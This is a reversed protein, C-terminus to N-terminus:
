RSGPWILVQFCAASSVMTSELCRPPVPRMTLLSSGRALVPSPAGPFPGLAVAGPGDADPPVDLDVASTLVAQGTATHGEVVILHVLEVSENRDPGRDRDDPRHLELIVDEFRDLVVLMITLRRRMAAAARM